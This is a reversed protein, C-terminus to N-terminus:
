KCAPISGSASITQGRESQNIEIAVSPTTTPSRDLAKGKKSRASFLVHDKLNFQTVLFELDFRLSNDIYVKWALSSGVHRLNKIM